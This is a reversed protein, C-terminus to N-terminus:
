GRRARAQGRELSRAHLDGRRAELPPLAAAHVRAARPATAPNAERRARPLDLAVAVRRAPDLPARRRAPRPFRAPRLGRRAQPPGRDARRASAGELRHPRLRRIEDDRESRSPVELPSFFSGGSEPGASAIEADLDSAPAARSSREWPM